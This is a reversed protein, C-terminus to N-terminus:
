PAQTGGGLPTFRNEAKDTYIGAVKAIVRDAQINDAALEHIMKQIAPWQDKAAISGIFCVFELDNDALDKRLFAGIRVAQWGAPNQRADVSLRAYLFYLDPDIPTRAILKMLLTHATKWSGATDIEHETLAMIVLAKIKQTDESQRAQEFEPSGIQVIKKLQDLDFLPKDMNEAAAIKPLQQMLTRKFAAIEVREATTPKAHKPKWSGQWKRYYSWAEDLEASNPIWQASSAATLVDRSIPIPNLGSGTAVLPADTQANSLPLFLSAAIAIASILRM